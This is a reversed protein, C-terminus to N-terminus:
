YDRTLTNLNLTISPVRGKKVAPRVGSNEANGQPEAKRRPQQGGQPPRRCSTSRAPFSTHSKAVLSKTQPEYSQLFEMIQQNESLNKAGLKMKRREHNLSVMIVSPGNSDTVSKAVESLRRGSEPKLPPCPRKARPKGRAKELEKQM